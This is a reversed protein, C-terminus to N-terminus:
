VIKRFYKHPILNMWVSTWVKWFQIVHFCVMTDVDALTSWCLIKVKQWLKTDISFITNTNGLRMIQHWSKILLRNWSSRLIIFLHSMIKKKTMNDNIINHYIIEFFFPTISIRRYSETVFSECLITSLERLNSNESRPM